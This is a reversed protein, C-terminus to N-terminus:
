RAVKADPLLRELSESFLAGSLCWALALAEDPRLIFTTPEDGDREFRFYITDCPHGSVMGASIRADDYPQACSEEYALAAEDFPVRRM